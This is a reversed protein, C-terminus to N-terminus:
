LRKIIYKKLFTPDYDLKARRLGDIGMDQEINLYSIGKENLYKAVTQNMFETAGEFNLDAKQFDSVCYDKDVVEFITYGVMKGESEVYTVFLDLKAPELFLRKTANMETETDKRDKNRVKEWYVFFDMVTQEDEKTLHHTEETDTHKYKEIFHNVMKRKQHLDAGEMSAINQIDLIYDFNDRDEALSLKGQIKQLSNGDFNSEPILTLKEELGENETFDLLQETTHIADNTGIFSYFPKGNLYDHFKIVLNNNLTSVQTNEGTNWAWLSVFNFDSYPPFKGTHKLINEKDSIELTKFHPFTPIMEEIASYLVCSKVTLSM